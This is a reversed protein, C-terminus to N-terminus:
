FRLKFKEDSILIIKKQSAFCISKGGRLLFELYQSLYTSVFPYVKFFKKLVGERMHGVM